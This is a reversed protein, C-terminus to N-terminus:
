CPNDNDIAFRSIFSHEVIFAKIRAITFQHEMVHSCSSRPMRSMTFFDMSRDLETRLPERRILEQRCRGSATPRRATAACRCVWARAANIGRRATVSYLGVVM